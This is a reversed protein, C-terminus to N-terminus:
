AVTLIQTFPQLTNVSMVAQLITDIIDSFEEQNFYSEMAKAFVDLSM